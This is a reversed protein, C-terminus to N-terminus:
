YLNLSSPLPRPGTRLFRAQLERLTEVPGALHLVGEEWPRQAAGGGGPASRLVLGRKQLEASCRYGAETGTGEGGLAVSGQGLSSEQHLLGGQGLRAQAQGAM